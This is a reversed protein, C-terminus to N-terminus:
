SMFTLKINGITFPFSFKDSAWITKHSEAESLTEKKLDLAAKAITGSGCCPDIIDTKINHVTSKVLLDALNKPTTFQGIIERRIGKISKELMTQLVSQDLSSIGQDTLFANFDTLDRWFSKPLLDSFDIPSLITFFDIKATLHKFINVADNISTEFKIEEVIKAPNHYEKILHAFTIKIIWNSVLMKSYALYMSPEDKYYEDKTEKWWNDLQVKILRNEKAKNELFAGVANKNQSVLTAMLHNSLAFEIKNSEITGNVFFENLQILIKDLLNVWDEQYTEVDERTKIHSLDNWQHKISWNENEDKIYLVVHNFNWLLTSNLGLITAKYQADKIYTEDTVSVDPLKLEWGQIIKSKTSDAYLLIDPFMIKRAGESQDTRNNITTEGGAKSIQLTKNQLSKNIHGILEIAWSRENDVLKVM